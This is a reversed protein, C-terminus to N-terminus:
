QRAWNSISAHTLTRSVTSSQCDTTGLGTCARMHRSDDGGVGFRCVMSCTAMIAAAMARGFESVLERARKGRATFAGRANPTPELLIAGAKGLLTGVFRDVLGMPRGAAAPAGITM